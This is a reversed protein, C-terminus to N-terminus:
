CAGWNLIVLVMDQVDVVGDLNIDADPDATNWALIVVVLDLVDVVGDGNADGPCAPAGQLTALVGITVGLVDHLEIVATGANHLGIQDGASLGGPASDIWNQTNWITCWDPHVEHWQSLTALPNNMVQLIMDNGLFPLEPALNLAREPGPPDDRRVWLTITLDDIRYNSSPGGPKQLLVRDEPALPGGADGPKRRMIWSNCYTPHVEHWALTAGAPLNVPNSEAPNYVAEPDFTEGAEFGAGLELSREGSPIQGPPCLTGDCTLTLTGAGQANGFGGVRLLVPVSCTVPFEMKAAFASCEEGDDNCDLLTLGTCAGTYLYAALRTDYDAQDCTTVELMGSCTPNYIFWIDAGFATGFGEDCAPPLAPGMSTANVTTYPTDGDFIQLAHSCPDNIPVIDKSVTITGAGQEGGFGGVQVLYCSGAVVPAIVRSQIGCADDNCGVLDGIAPPCECGVYVAVVTDYGGGCTEVVLNGTFDAQFSYWVDSGLAGCPTPGSSTAGVTSFDTEGSELPLAEVCLDNEPVPGSGPVARACLHALEPASGGAAGAAALLAAFAISRVHRV